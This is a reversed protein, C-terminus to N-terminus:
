RTESGIGNEEMFHLIPLIDDYMIHYCKGDAFRAKIGEETFQEVDADYRYMDFVEKILARAKEVSMQAQELLQADTHKM